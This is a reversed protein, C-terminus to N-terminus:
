YVINFFIAKLENLIKMNYNQKLPITFYRILLQEKNDNSLYFDLYSIIINEKDKDTSIFFFRDNEDTVVDNYKIENNFKYDYLYVIPFNDYKDNISFNTESITKILFTPINNLDGSYYAYVCFDLTFLLAKMFYPKELNIDEKQEVVIKNKISFGDNDRYVQIITYNNDKSLYFCSILKNQNFSLSNCSMYEGKIETEYHFKKNIELSQYFGPNRKFKYEYFSINYYESNEEKSTIAVFHFFNNLFELLSPKGKIIIDEDLFNTPEILLNNIPDKIEYLEIFSNDSGLLLIINCSIYNFTIEANKIEKRESREINIKQPLYYINDSNFFNEILDGYNFGFFIREENNSLTTGFIIANLRLDQKFYIDGNTNEIIFINNVSCEKTNPNLSCYNTFCKNTKLLNNCSEQLLTQIIINLFISIKFLIFNTPIIKEM